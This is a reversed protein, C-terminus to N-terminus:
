KNARKSSSSEFCEAKMVKRHDEVCLSASGLSAFDQVSRQFDAPLGADIKHSWKNEAMDGHRGVVGLLTSFRKLFAFREKAFPSYAVIVQPKIAICRVSGQLGAFPVLRLAITARQFVIRTWLRQWPGIKENSIAAGKSSVASMRASLRSPLNKVQAAFGFAQSKSADERRDVM